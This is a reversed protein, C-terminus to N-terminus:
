SVQTKSTRQASLRLYPPMDADPRKLSKAMGSIEPCWTAGMLETAIQEAKHLEAQLPTPTHLPAWVSQCLPESPLAVICNGQAAAICAQLPGHLLRLPHRQTSPTLRSDPGQM